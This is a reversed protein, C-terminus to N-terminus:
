EYQKILKVPDPTQTWVYWHRGIHRFGSITTPFPNTSPNYAVGTVDHFMGRLMVYLIGNHTLAPYPRSHLHKWPLGHIPVPKELGYTLVLGNTHMNWGNTSIFSEVAALATQGNVDPGPMSDWRGGCSTLSVVSVIPLIRSRM